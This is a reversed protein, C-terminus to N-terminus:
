ASCAKMTIHKVVVNSPTYTRISDSHGAYQVTLTYKGPKLKFYTTASAKASVTKRYGKGGVVLKTRGLMSETDFPVPQSEVSLRHSACDLRTRVAVRTDLTPVPIVLTVIPSYERYPCADCLTDNGAVHVYYTGPAIQSTDTWTTAMVSTMGFAVSNETFFAGDSGVSSASAIEIVSYSTAGVPNSWTVIPHQATQSVSLITPPAAMAAVPVLLGAFSVCTAILARRLCSLMM